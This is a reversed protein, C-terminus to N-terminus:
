LSIYLLGINESKQYFGITLMKPEFIMKANYTVCKVIYGKRKQKNQGCNEFTVGFRCLM